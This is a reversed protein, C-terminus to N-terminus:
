DFMGRPKTMFEETAMSNLLEPYEDTLQNLEDDDLMRGSTTEAYSFFADCFDPYDFGEVGEIEITSELIETNNIVIKM